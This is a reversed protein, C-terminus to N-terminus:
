SIRLISLCNFILGPVGPVLGETVGVVSSGAIVSGCSDPDGVEATSGESLWVVSFGVTVGFGHSSVGEGECVSDGDGDTKTVGECATIGERATVGDIGNM